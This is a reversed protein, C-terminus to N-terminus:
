LTPGGECRVQTPLTDNLFSICFPELRWLETLTITRKLIEWRAWLTTRLEISTVGRREKEFNRIEDYNM